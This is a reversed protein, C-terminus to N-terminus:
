TLTKKRSTFIFSYLKSIALLVIVIVLASIVFMMKGLHIDVPEYPEPTYLHKLDSTFVDNAVDIISNIEDESLTKKYAVRILGVAFEDPISNYPIMYAEDNGICTYVENNIKYNHNLEYPCQDNKEGNELYLPAKFVMESSTLYEEDLDKEAIMGPYSAYWLPAILDNNDMIKGQYLELGASSIEYQDTLEVFEIWKNKFDAFQIAGPFSVTDGPVYSEDNLLLYHGSVKGNENTNYDFRFSMVPDFSLTFVKYWSEEKEVYEMNYAMGCSIFVAICCVVQAFILFLFMVPHFRIFKGINKFTLMIWRM